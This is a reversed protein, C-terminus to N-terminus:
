NNKTITRVYVRKDVLIKIYYIGGPMKGLDIAKAFDNSSVVQELQYITQGLAYIIGIEIKKNRLGKATLYFEGSSPNPTVTILFQNDPNIVGTAVSVVISVTRVISNGCSNLSNVSLNYTGPTTWNITAATTNQGSIITGGGSLQWNFGTANTITSITYTLTQGNVVATSGSITGPQPPVQNVLVTTIPSTASCLGINTATVSYNGADTVIISQTTAGTSWLYSNATDATLTVSGGSCFTTPGSATITAAFSGPTCGLSTVLSLRPPVAMVAQMRAKQDFTFRGISPVCYSMYNYRTNDWIGVGSCPNSAGCDSQKHPPTDCCRDGSTTCDTNVPCSTNGGDGEFTHFLFLGHGVEHPLLYSDGNMYVSRILTGDNVGGNPYYAYGGWQGSCINNVVWINYYDSVPWRSLSKVSEENAGTACGGTRIGFTSYDPIGAGNVRNIGNTPCGTPSRVALCFSIETNLSGNGIINSYKNNLGTIAAQIQADSINTGTGVPEGLHIVHVVVPITYVQTATGTLPQNNIITHVQSQLSLFGSQYASDTQMLKQHHQYTGCQDQAM